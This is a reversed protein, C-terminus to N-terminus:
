RRDAARAIQLIARGCIEASPLGTTKCDLEAQLLLDLAIALKEGPWRSIQQKMRGAVRFHPPPRLAAIASDPNKGDRVHSVALHLRTFHRQLGRLITVPSIGESLLRYLVRQAGAQDGESAAMALDDQSLAASDGTVAAADALSVRRNAGMYLSLKDIESRTQLRDGGLHDVLWAQADPEATLGHARLSQSVVGQLASDDDAYCAIAAVRDHTEALKRLSSRPTLEGAEILLLADGLPHDLWSQLPAALGDGADRIRVVRKGGLMAIAAMEDALRAPDDKLMAMTLDILRFPDKATPIVQRTLQDLREKVLGVDPGFLLVAQRDPAKLFAEIRAGSLKM